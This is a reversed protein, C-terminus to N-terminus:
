NLGLSQTKNKAQHTLGHAEPGLGNLPAQVSAEAQAKMGRVSWFLLAPTPLGEGWHM